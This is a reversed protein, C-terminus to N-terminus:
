RKNSSGGYEKKCMQSAHDKTELTYQQKMLSLAHKILNETWLISNTKVCNPSFWLKTQTKGVSASLTTPHAHFWWKPSHRDSGGV